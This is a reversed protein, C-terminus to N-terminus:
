LRFQNAGVADRDNPLLVRLVAEKTAPDALLYTYTSSDKDFLQRFIPSSAMSTLSLSRLSLTYCPSLSRLATSVAPRLLM